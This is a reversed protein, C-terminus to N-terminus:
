RYWLVTHLGTEYVNQKEKVKKTTSKKQFFFERKTKRPEQHPLLRAVGFAEFVLGYYHRYTLGRVLDQSAM